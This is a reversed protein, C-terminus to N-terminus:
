KYRTGIIKLYTDLEDGRYVRDLGDYVEKYNNNTDVLLAGYQLDKWRNPFAQKLAGLMEKGHIRVFYFTEKSGYYYSNWHTPTPMTICWKSNKGSGSKCDVYAFEGLGLAVAAEHTNPRKISVQTEDINPFDSTIDKAKESKSRTDVGQQNLTDVEDQLDKFTKYQYIDSTETKNARNLDHWETVTNRLDDIDQINKNVWQKAMWGVYKRNDTPDIEILQKLEDPTLTGNAIYQKAQKVNELIPKKNRKLLKSRQYM